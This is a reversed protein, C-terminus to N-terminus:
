ENNSVEKMSEVDSGFICDSISSLFGKCWENCANAVIESFSEVYKIEEFTGYMRAFIGNALQWLLEGLCGEYTPSEICVISYDHTGTVDFNFVSVINCHSVLSYRSAHWTEKQHLGDVGYVKWVRKIM